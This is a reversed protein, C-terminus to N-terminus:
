GAEGGDARRVTPTVHESGRLATWRGLVDVVPRLVTQLPACRVANRGAGALRLPRPPAFLCAGGAGNGPCLRAIWAGGIGAAVFRQRLWEAQALSRGESLVRYVVTRRMTVAVIAPRLQAHARALCVANARDTFSGFVVYGIGSSDGADTRAGYTRPPAPRRTPVRFATTRAAATAVPTVPRRTGHVGGPRRSPLVDDTSDARATVLGVDSRDALQTVAKGDSVKVRAVDGSDRYARCPKKLKIMRWMACDQDAIESIAHDSVSKGSVLLSTGDAAYSAVVLAPPVAGVCGSLFLLFPVTYAKQV